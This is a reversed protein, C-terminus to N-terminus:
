GPDVEGYGLAVTFLHDPDHRTLRSLSASAAGYVSCSLGVSVAALWVAYGLAGARVLLSGYAAGPTARLPGCILVLAPASVYADRLDEVLGPRTPRGLSGTVPDRPYLGPELGTVTHAAVLFSLGPHGHRDAPWQAAQQHEAAGLVRILDAPDLEDSSFRYVSRRAAIASGLLPCPGQLPTATAAAVPGEAEPFPTRSHLMESVADHPATEAILPM